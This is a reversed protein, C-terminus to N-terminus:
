FNEWDDTGTQAAVPETAPKAKAILKAPAQKADFQPRTVNTARNPGRREGVSHTVAPLPAAGLKFVGVVQSLNAAQQSLSHAAAASEEVLAANQQTVQDLQNVAEGVQSIGQSQEISASSIEAILDNVRRVQSVIDQMSKGAEDVLKSGTEVKEVSEGILTKIEKAASASRQALSRVESAVVAFGRGQEGARAAEVAANLALINTQFAIGDIVSIIDSIKKSSTTIAEMTSVVEGVVVGGKAAAESATTALQNAERATDSNQKVTATLQEMSSATEELSSAQHETRNALDQNGASIEGSALAIADTGQRVESVISALKERMTKIAFMLSQTDSPRVPIAVTLDGTAIRLAAAAAMAPEGGISRELNRIVLWVSITLAAGIAALLAAAQWLDAAFIADLDDMYLGTMYTWDWPKFAADYALKAVPDKEGPKPWLYSSFGGGKESAKLADLYVLTGNPDKFAAVDTGVLEPKFPHMLVKHSDLVTFYGSTGYRLAKIRALAEAKAQEIPMKGAAALAAYDKAVSVAIDSVSKLQAKREDLQITRTHMVNFGIVSLLCLWGLVLPISLKQRFSLNM